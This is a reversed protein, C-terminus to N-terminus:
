LTILKIYNIVPVEYPHYKLMNVHVKELDKKRIRFELKSEEVMELEGINGITPHAGKLPRFHGKVRTEAYCCDYNKEELVGLENVKKMFEEANEKPIFVEVKIFEM